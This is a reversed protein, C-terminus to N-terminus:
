KKKKPKRALNQEVRKATVRTVLELPLPQDHPFQVSGKAGPYKAFEDAFSEVGQPTPYFGIHKKAAGFYVVNGNQYYAPMGYSIIEDAEPAGARCAARMQELRAQVDAPFQAIYEDVTRIPENNEM